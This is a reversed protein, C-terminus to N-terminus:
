FRFIQNFRNTKRCNYCDQPNTKIKSRIVNSSEIIKIISENKFEMSINCHDDIPNNEIRRGRTSEGIRISELQFKLNNNYSFELKIYRNWILGLCNYYLESKDLKVDTIVGIPIDNIIIPKNIFNDLDIKNNEDVDINFEVFMCNIRKDRM